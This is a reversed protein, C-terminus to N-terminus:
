TKDRIQRQVPHYGAMRFEVKRPLTEGPKWLLRGERPTRASDSTMRASEVWVDAGPPDSIFNVVVEEPKPIFKWHIKWYGAADREGKGREIKIRAPEYYENLSLELTRERDSDNRWKITVLAGDGAFKTRELLDLKDLRITAGPPDSSIKWTHEPNEASPMLNFVIKGDEEVDFERWAGSIWDISTGIVGTLFSWYFYGNTRTKLHFPGPLYGKHKFAIVHEEKPWDEFTHPTKYTTKDDGSVQFAAGSPKSDIIVRQTTGSQILSCGATLLLAPATWWFRNRM